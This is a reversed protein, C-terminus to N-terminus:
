AKAEAMFLDEFEDPPLYGLASHLRDENYVESIFYDIRQRAERINRYEFLYVEEQKLTKMFSEAKANDYPNGKRSMSIGIGHETLLDTYERAGYQIGRDSHHILGPEISRSVLARKLAGVSLSVDLGDSIEWGICQRSFADLIVALYIFEDLLRIYTIDAVWLQNISSLTIDAALNPYTSIGPQTTKIWGKRKICLLNDERMLRLVKKHNIITKYSRVLEKTIRRYGYRSHRLAIQQIQDKLEMESNDNETSNSWRYYSA